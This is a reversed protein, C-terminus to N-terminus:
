FLHSTVLEGGSLLPWQPPLQSLLLPLPLFLIIIIQIFTLREGLHDCRLALLLRGASEPLRRLHDLLRGVSELYIHTSSIDLCQEKWSRYRWVRFEIDASCLEVIRKGIGIVRGLM